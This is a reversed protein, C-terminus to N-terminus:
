DAMLRIAGKVFNSLLNLVDSTPVSIKAKKELIGHRSLLRQLSIPLMKAVPALVLVFM